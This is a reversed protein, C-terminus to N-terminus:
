QGQGKESKQNALTPTAAQGNAIREEEIAPTKPAQFGFGPPPVISASLPRTNNNEYKDYPYAAVFIFM